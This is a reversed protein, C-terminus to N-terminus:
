TKNNGRKSGEDFLKQKEADLSAATATSSDVFSRTEVKGGHLRSEMVSNSVSSYSNAIGVSSSVDYQMTSHRAIGMQGAEAFADVNAGLYVISWGNEEATKIREQIMAKTFRRSQNEAGDTVVVLIGQTFDGAAWDKELADMTDGLADLLPTGGRPSYEQRGLPVISSLAQLPRFRETAESDFRVLCIDAPVDIRQQDKIFANVGGVVDDEKGGMSGSRDLVLCILTKM